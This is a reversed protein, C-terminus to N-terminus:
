SRCRFEFDMYCIGWGTFTSTIVSGVHYFKIYGAPEAGACVIWQTGADPGGSGHDAVGRPERWRFSHLRMETFGCTRATGTTFGGSISSLLRHQACVALSNVGTAAANDDADFAMIPISNAQLSVTKDGDTTPNVYNFVMEGGLVKYQEFLAVMTSWESMTTPDLANTGGGIAVTNTVGSTVTTAITFPTSLRMRIPRNGLGARMATVALSVEQKLLDLDKTTSLMDFKVDKQGDFYGNKALALTKEKEKVKAVLPMLKQVGSKLMKGRAQASRFEPGMMKVKRPKSGFGFRNGSKSRRSGRSSTRSRQSPTKSRRFLLSDPHPVLKLLENKSLKNLNVSSM